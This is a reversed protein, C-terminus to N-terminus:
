TIFLFSYTHPRSSFSSGRSYISIKFFNNLVEVVESDDDTLSGDPKELPGISPKITSRERVYGYLAKSNTTLNQILTKDFGAKASTIM